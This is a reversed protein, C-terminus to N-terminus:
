SLWEFFPITLGVRPHNKLSCKIGTYKAKGMVDTVGNWAEGVIM